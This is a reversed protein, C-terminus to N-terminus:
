NDRSPGTDNATLNLSPTDNKLRSGFVKAARILDICLEAGVERRVGEGGGLGM